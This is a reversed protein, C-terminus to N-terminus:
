KIPLHHIVQLDIDALRYLDTDIEEFESHLLNGEIMSLYYDFIVQAKKTYGSERTRSDVTVGDKICDLVTLKHALECTDAHTIYYINTM